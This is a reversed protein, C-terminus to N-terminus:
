KRVQRLFFGVVTQAYAWALPLLQDYPRHRALWGAESRLAKGVEKGRGNRLVFRLRNRHYRVLFRPSWAGQTRSEEHIVRAPPVMWVEWGARRARCCLDCEEFYIPFYGPDLPGATEWVERRVAMAAGTVYDCRYPRTPLGAEIESKGWAIHDTLGNPHLRAGAHQITRGDPYLLLCGLIGARPFSEGAELLAEIWGRHPQTDDNLLLIWNGQAYAAGLNNGGAFGLNRPARVLRVWPFRKRVVASTADTSGNDVVIIEVDRRGSELPPKQEAKGEGPPSLSVALAELCRGIRKEGNLSVIIISVLM